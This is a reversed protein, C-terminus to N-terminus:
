WYDPSSLSSVQQHKIEIQEMKIKHARHLEKLHIAYKEKADESNNVAAEHRGKWTDFAETTSSNGQQFKGVVTRLITVQKQNVDALKQLTFIEQQDLKLVQQFQDKKKTGKELRNFTCYYLSFVLQVIHM